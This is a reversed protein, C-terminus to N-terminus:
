LMDSFFIDKRASSYINFLKYHSIYLLASKDVQFETEMTSKMILYTKTDTTMDATMQGGLQKPQNM